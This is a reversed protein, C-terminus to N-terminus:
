RLDGPSPEPPLEAALEQLMLFSQRRMEGGLHWLHKLYAFAVHPMRIPGLATRALSPAGPPGVGPGGAGAGPVSLDGSAQHAPPIGSASPLLHDPIHLSGSAVRLMGLKSTIAGGKLGAGITTELRVLHAGAPDHALLRAFTARSQSIRGGKRCISAFKLWTHSDEHAPLVLSRVALLAQWVEVNRQAGRIRERWMRRVQVIVTIRCGNVM